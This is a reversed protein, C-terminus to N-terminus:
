RAWYKRGRAVGKHTVQKDDVLRRLPLAISDKDLGTIAQLQECRLGPEKKLVSLIKNAAESIEAATRKGSEAAVGPKAKSAKSGVSADILARMGALTSERMLATVDAVFKEVLGDIESKMTKEVALIGTVTM